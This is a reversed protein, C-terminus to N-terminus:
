WELLKAVGSNNTKHVGLDSVVAFWRVVGDESERSEGVSFGLFFLVFWYWCSWFWHFLFVFLSSPSSNVKMSALFLVM